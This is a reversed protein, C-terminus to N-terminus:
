VSLFPQNPSVGSANPDTPQNSPSIQLVNVIQNWFKEAQAEQYKARGQGFLVSSPMVMSLFPVTASSIFAPLPNLFLSSVASTAIFTYIAGTRRNACERDPIDSRVLAPLRALQTKHEEIQSLFYQKDQESLQPHIALISQKIISSDQSFLSTLYGLELQKSQIKKLLHQGQSQEQNQM